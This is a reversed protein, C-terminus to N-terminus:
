REASRDIPPVEEFVVDEGLAGCVKCKKLADVYPLWEHSCPDVELIEDWSLGTAQKIKQLADIGCGAGDELRTYTAYSVNCFRAFERVRM